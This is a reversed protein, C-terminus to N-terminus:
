PNFTLLNLQRGDWVAYTNFKIWDGLNIYRSNKGVTM